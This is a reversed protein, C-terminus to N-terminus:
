KINIENLEKKVGNKDLYYLKIIKNGDKEKSLYESLFSILKEKDDYVFNELTQKTDVIDIIYEQITSEDDKCNDIFVSIISRINFILEEKIM